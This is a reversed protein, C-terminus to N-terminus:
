TKRTFNGEELEEKVTKKYTNVPIDQFTIKGEARLQDPDVYLSKPM